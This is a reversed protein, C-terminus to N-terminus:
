RDISPFGDQIMRQSTAKVIYDNLTEGAAAAAEEIKSKEGKKVFPYLRDYTKSNFTNKAKTASKQKGNNKTDM